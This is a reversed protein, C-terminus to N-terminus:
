VQREPVVHHRQSPLRRNKGDAEYGKHTTNTVLELANEGYWGISNLVHENFKTTDIESYLALKGNDIEDAMGAVDTKATMM